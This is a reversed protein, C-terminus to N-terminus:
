PQCDEDFWAFAVEVAKGLCMITGGGAGREAGGRVRLVV